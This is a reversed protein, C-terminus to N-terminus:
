RALWALLGLPDEHKLLAAIAFPGILDHMDPVVDNVDAVVRWWPIGGGSARTEVLRELTSTLTNLVLRAGRATDDIETSPPFRGRAADSSGERAWFYACLHQELSFGEISAFGDLYEGKVRDMNPGIGPPNLLPGSQALAQWLGSQFAKPPSFLPATIERLTPVFAGFSLETLERGWVTLLVNSLARIRIESPVHTRPQVAYFYRSALEVCTLVTVLAGVFLAASERTWIDPAGVRLPDEAAGSTLLARIDARIERDLSNVTSGDQDGDLDGLAVHAAEHHLLFRECYDSMWDARTWEANKLWVHCPFDVDGTLRVSWLTVRLLRTLAQVPPQDEKETSAQSAGLFNVKWQSFVARCLLTPLNLMGLQCVIVYQNPSPRIVNIGWRRSWSTMVDTAMIRATEEQPFPCLPYTAKLLELHKDLRSSRRDSDENFSDSSVIDSGLYGLSQLEQVKEFKAPRGDVDDVTSANLIADMFLLKPVSFDGNMM